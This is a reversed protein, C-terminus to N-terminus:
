LFIIIILFFWVPNYLIYYLPNFTALGTENEALYKQKYKLGKVEQIFM